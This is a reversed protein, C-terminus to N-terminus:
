VFVFKKDIGDIVNGNNDLQLYYGSAYSEYIHIDNNTDIEFFPLATHGNWINSPLPTINIMKNGNNDYKGYFINTYPYRHNEIKYDYKGVIHINGENDLQMDRIFVNYWSRNKSALLNEKYKLNLVINGNKDFKAFSHSYPNVCYINDESDM